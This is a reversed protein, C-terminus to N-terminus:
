QVHKSRNWLLFTFKKSMKEDLKFYKIAIKQLVLWKQIIKGFHFLQCLCLDQNKTGACGKNSMNLGTGSWFREFIEM